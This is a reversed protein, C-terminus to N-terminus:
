PKMDKMLEAIARRSDREVLKQFGTMAMLLTAPDKCNTAIAATCLAALARAVIYMSTGDPIIAFLADNLKQALEIARDDEDQQTM